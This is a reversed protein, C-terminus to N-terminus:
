PVRVRAGGSGRCDRPGPSDTAIIDTAILLGPRHHDRVSRRGHNAPAPRIAEIEMGRQVAASACELLALMGGATIAANFGADEMTSGRDPLRRPPSSSTLTWVVRSLPSAQKTAKLALAQGKLPRLPIDIGQPSLNDADWVGNAVIVTCAQCVGAATVLGSM